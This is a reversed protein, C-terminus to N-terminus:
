SRARYDLSITRRNAAEARLQALDMLSPRAICFMYACRVTRLSTGTWVHRHGHDVTSM